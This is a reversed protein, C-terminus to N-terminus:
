LNLASCIRRLCSDPERKLQCEWIRIVTWGRRRLERTNAADRHRTATIKIEWLEANNKPTLNRGCDHGHWFCGDIFLVLREKRWGFDPSGILKLHRRWGTIHSARLLSAMRGETTRNGKSRILSMLAARSLNGFTTADQNTPHQRMVKLRKM